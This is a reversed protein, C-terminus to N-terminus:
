QYSMPFILYITHLFFIHIVCVARFERFLASKEHASGDPRCGRAYAIRSEAFDTFDAHSM